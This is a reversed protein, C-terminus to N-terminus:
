NQVQIARIHQEYFLGRAKDPFELLWWPDDPTYTMSKRVITARRWYPQRTGCDVEITQGALYVTM